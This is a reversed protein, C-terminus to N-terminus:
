KILRKKKIAEPFIHFLYVDFEIVVAGNGKLLVFNEFVNRFSRRSVFKVFHDYWIYGQKHTSLIYLLRM